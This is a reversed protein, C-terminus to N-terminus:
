PLLPSRLGAAFGRRAALAELVLVTDAVPVDELYEDREEFSRLVLGVADGYAEGDGVALAALAAAVGAPFSGADGTRLSAALRAAEADDELIHAALAAAYRAIPSADTASGTERAWAADQAAGEWDGALIRAKLAGILRGWSGPPAGEYSERYREGSRAFWGRAEAERCQMLRCLGAGGAAMAMRVLQRQRSDAEGPLRAAGDRYRLEEAVARADWDM